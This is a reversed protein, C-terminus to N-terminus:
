CAFRASLVKSLDLKLNQPKKEEKQESHGERQPSVM